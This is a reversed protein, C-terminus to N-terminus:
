IYMTAIRHRFTDQSADVPASDLFFDPSYANPLNLMILENYPTNRFDRHIIMRNLTEKRKIRVYLSDCFYEFVQIYM